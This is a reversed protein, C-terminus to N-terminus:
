VGIIDAATFKVRRNLATLFVFHQTYIRRWSEAKKPPFPMQSDSPLYWDRTVSYLLTNHQMLFFNSAFSSARDNHQLDQCQALFYTKEVWLLSWGCEQKFLWSEPPCKYFCGTASILGFAHFISVTSKKFAYSARASHRRYLRFVLFFRCNQLNFMCCFKQWMHWFHWWIMM